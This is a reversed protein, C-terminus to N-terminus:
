NCNSTPHNRCTLERKFGNEYFRLRPPPLKGAPPMQFDSDSDYLVSEILLSQDPKGPVVLEGSDGGSRIAQTTDLLLGGQVTKADQSHCSYCREALIPRVKKEFYEVESAIVSTSEQQGDLHCVDWCGSLILAILIAVTRM